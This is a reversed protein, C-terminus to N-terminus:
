RLFYRRLIFVFVGMVALPVTWSLGSWLRNILGSPLWTTLAAIALAGLASTALWGYWYMAPGESAPKVLFYFKETAAHYTFLALNYQVSFVYLLAYAVAFITVFTPVSRGGTM